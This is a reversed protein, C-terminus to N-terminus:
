RSRTLSSGYRNYIPPPVKYIKRIAILHCPEINAIPCKDIVLNFATDFDYEYFDMLVGIAVANSRSMGASCCICVKNEKLMNCVKDICMRYDELTNRPEDYLLSRIDFVVWDEPLKADSWDLGHTALNETILFMIRDEKISRDNRTRSRWEYYYNTGDSTKCM